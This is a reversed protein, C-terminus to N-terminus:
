RKRERKRRNAYLWSDCSYHVHPPPSPLSPRERSFSVFLRTPTVEQDSKPESLFYSLQLPGQFCVYVAVLAVTLLWKHSDVSLWLTFGRRWFYASHSRQPEARVQITKGGAALLLFYLAWTTKKKRHVNNIKIKKSEKRNILAVTIHWPLLFVTQSACYSSQRETAGSPALEVSLLAGNQTPNLKETPPPSQFPLVSSLDHYPNASFLRHREFCEVTNCRSSASIINKKRSKIKELFEFFGVHHSSM